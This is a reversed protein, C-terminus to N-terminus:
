QISNVLHLFNLLLNSSDVTNMRIQPCQHRQNMDVPFGSLDCQFM